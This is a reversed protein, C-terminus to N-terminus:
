IEVATEELSGFFIPPTMAAPVPGTYIPTPALQEVGICQDSVATMAATLSPRKFLSPVGAPPEKFGSSSSSSKEAYAAFRQELDGKATEPTM